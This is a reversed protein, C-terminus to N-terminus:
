KSFAFRANIGKDGSMAWLCPKIYKNISFRDEKSLGNIFGEDEGKRNRVAIAYPNNLFYKDYYLGLGDSITQNNYITEMAMYNGSYGSSEKLSMKVIKSKYVWHGVLSRFGEKYKKM